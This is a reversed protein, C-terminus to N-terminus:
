LAARWPKWGHGRHRYYCRCGSALLQRRRASQPRTAAVAPLVRLCGPGSAPL